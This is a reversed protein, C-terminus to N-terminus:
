HGDAVAPPNQEYRALLRDVLELQREIRILAVREKILEVNSGELFNQRIEGSGEEGPNSVIPEGSEKTAFFLNGGSSKLGSPNVFRCLELRGIPTPQNSGAVTAEVSGDEAINVDTTNPPFNLKPLV